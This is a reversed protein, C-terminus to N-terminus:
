MFHGTGFCRSRFHGFCNAGLCILYIQKLTVKIQLNEM